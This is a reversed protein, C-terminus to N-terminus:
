EPTVQQIYKAIIDIADRSEPVGLGIFMQWVQRLELLSLHYELYDSRVFLFDRAIIMHENIWVALPCPM